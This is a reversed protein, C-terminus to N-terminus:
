SQVYLMLYVDYLNQPQKSALLWLISPSVTRFMYLKTGFYFLNSINHMQNTKSYFYILICPRVFMLCTLTFQQKISNRMCNSRCDFTCICLIIQKKKNWTLCSPRCNKGTCKVRSHTRSKFILSCATIKTSNIFIKIIYTLPGTAKKAPCTCHQMKGFLHM